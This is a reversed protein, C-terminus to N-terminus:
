QLRFVYHAYDCNAALRVGYELGHVPLDRVVRLVGTLDNKQSFM